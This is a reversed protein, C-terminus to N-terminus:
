EHRWRTAARIRYDGVLWRTRLWTVRSFPISVGVTVRDGTELGNLQPPDMTTTVADADIGAAQLADNVADVVEDPTAGDLSALRAGQRAADSVLAQVMIARGFEIIGLALLIMAPAVLAFEVAAAGKRARCRGSGRKAQHRARFPYNQHSRQM